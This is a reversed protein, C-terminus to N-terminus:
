QTLAGDVFRGLEGASAAGLRSALVEGNRVLLLTPVSRIGVEQALTPCADIDVKLVRLSGSRSQAFAELVPALGQCPGCWAAAFDVLTPTDDEMALVARAQSDDRAELVSKM